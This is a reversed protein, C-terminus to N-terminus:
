NQASFANLLCSLCNYSQNTNDALNQAVVASSEDDVPMAIQDAATPLTDSENESEYSEGQFRGVDNYWDKFYYGLKGGADAYKGYAVAQEVSDELMEIEEGIEEGYRQLLHPYDGNDLGIKEKFANFQDAPIKAADLPPLTGLEINMWADIVASHVKSM